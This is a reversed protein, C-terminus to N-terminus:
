AVTSSIQVMKLYLSSYFNALLMLFADKKRFIQPLYSPTTHSYPSGEQHLEFEQEM